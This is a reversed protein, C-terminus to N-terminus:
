PSLNSCAHVPGLAISYVVAMYQDVPQADEDAPESFGWYMAELKGDPLLGGHMVRDGSGRAYEVVRYSSGDIVADVTLFTGQAMQTDLILCRTTGLNFNTFTRYYALIDRVKPRNPFIFQMGRPTQQIPELEVNALNGSIPLWRRFDEFDDLILWEEGRRVDVHDINSRYEMGVRKWAISEVEWMYRANALTAVHLWYHRPARQVTAADPLLSSATEYAGNWYYYNVLFVYAAEKQEAIHNAFQILAEGWGLDGAMATRRSSNDGGLRHLTDVFALNTAATQLMQLSVICLACVGLLFVAGGTLTAYRREFIIALWYIKRSNM